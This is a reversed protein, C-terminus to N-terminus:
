SCYLGFFIVSAYLELRGGRWLIFAFLLDVNNSCTARFTVAACNYLNPGLDLYCEPDIVFLPTPDLINM